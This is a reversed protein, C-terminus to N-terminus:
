LKETIFVFGMEGLLRYLWIDTLRMIDIIEMWYTKENHSWPIHRWCVGIEYFFDDMVGNLPDQVKINM